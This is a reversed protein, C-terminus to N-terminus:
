QRVELECGQRDHLHHGVRVQVHRNEFHAQAPPEIGHINKIGVAGDDGADVQVVGLKQAFRALGDAELFGADHAGAPGHHHAVRHRGVADAGVRRRNAGVQPLGPAVKLCRAVLLM